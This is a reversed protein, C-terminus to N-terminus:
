KGDGEEEEKYKGKNKKEIKWDSISGKKMEADVAEDRKRTQFSSTLLLSSIMIKRYIRLYSSLLNFRERCHKWTKAKHKMYENEKM